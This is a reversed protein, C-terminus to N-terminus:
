NNEHKGEYRAVSVTHDLWYRTAPEISSFRDRHHHLINGDGLWVALHQPVKARFQMLLVDDPQLENVPREVFGENVMQQRFVDRGQDWWGWPEQYHHMALERKQAFYDKVLTYCDHIGYAYPRGTLPAAFHKPQLWKTAGTPYSVILWPLQGEGCATLDAMSPEASVYHHSHVVALITVGEDEVRTYDEPDLFFEAQAPALNRCARYATRKGEKVLLGCCERPAERAAHSMIEAYVNKPLKM